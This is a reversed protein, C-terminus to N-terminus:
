KMLVMRNTFSQAGVTLRYFYIGSPNASGDWAVTYSGASQRSNILTSIERGTIDFVKLEVGGAAPVSYIITTVPNFPNPYNRAMLHTTAEGTYVPDVASSSTAALNTTDGPERWFQTGYEYPVVWQAEDNHHSPVLAGMIYFVEGPNAPPEIMDAGFNVYMLRYDPLTRFLFVGNANQPPEPICLDEEIMGMIEVHPPNEHQDADSMTQHGGCQNVVFQQTGCFGGHGDRPDRWVLGNITFVAVTPPEAFGLLGGVITIEDGNVPRVAGSPPNYWPPGFALRYDPTGDADVDLFYATRLPHLSDPHLVIATGELEVITLSDRPHESTDRPQLTLTVNTTQDAVVEIVAAAAGAMRLSASVTYAGAPVQAFQFAGLNSAMQRDNFHNGHEPHGGVGSLQVMAGAAPNGDPLLVTGTITGTRPQAILASAVFFISAFVFITRKM